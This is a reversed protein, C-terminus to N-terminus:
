RWAPEEERVPERDAANAAGYAFAITPGPTAGVDDAVQGGPTADFTGGGAPAASERRSM